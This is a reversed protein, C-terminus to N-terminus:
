FRGLLAERVGDVALTDFASDAGLELLAAATTGGTGVGICYAGLGRAAAVDRPTDGIVVVRCEAIPAGLAEAGRRAGARLLEVRDEADCGFGGFRFHGDIGGRALKAYAGVRVNGTGLGVALGAIGTLSEILSVVAPLVRYNTAKELESALRELYAALVDDIAAEDVAAGIARLGERAIARDTMGEFSFHACADPRGLLDGFARDM